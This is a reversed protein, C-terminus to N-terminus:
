RKVHHHHCANDNAQIQHEKFVSEPFAQQHIDANHQYEGCKVQSNPAVAALREDMLHRDEDIPLAGLPARM